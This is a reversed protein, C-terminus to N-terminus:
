GGSGTSNTDPSPCHDLPPPALTDTVERDKEYVDMTTFLGFEEYRDSVFKQNGAGFSLLAVFAAIAIVVGAVTLGSRLKVRWINGVSLEIQDRLTM